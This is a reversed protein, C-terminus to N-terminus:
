LGLYSSCIRDGMEAKESNSGDVLDNIMVPKLSVSGGNPSNYQGGSYPGLQKKPDLSAIMSSLKKPKLKGKLQILSVIDQFNSLLHSYLM